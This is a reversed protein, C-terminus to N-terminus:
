GMKKGMMIFFGGEKEQTFIWGLQSLFHDVKGGQEHKEFLQEGPTFQEALNIKPLSNVYEVKNERFWNLVEDVTHKTEHPNQYQDMFWVRKKDDAITERRMFYDLKLFRGGTIKFVFKRMISLLRGYKNYLGIIIYGNKKVLQCLIKFGEYASHTHHLVGMCFVYDFSEEKFAM